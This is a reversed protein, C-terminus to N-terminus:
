RVNQGGQKIRDEIWKEISEEVWGVCRQGLQIPAPFQKTKIFAYITSRSLGTKSKVEPLRLIKNTMIFKNSNIFHLYVGIDNAVANILEM